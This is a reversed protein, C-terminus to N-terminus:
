RRALVRPLVLKKAPDGGLAIRPHRRGARHREHGWRPRGHRQAPVAGFRHDRHPPGSSGSFCLVIVRPIYEVGGFRQLGFAFQITAVMGIFISTVAFLASRGCASSDIQYITSSIELAAQVDTSPASPSRRSTGWTSRCCLVGRPFPRVRRDAFAAPHALRPLLAPISEPPQRRLREHSREGRRGCVSASSRPRRASARPSIDRLRRVPWPSGPRRRSTSSTMTCGDESSTSTTSCPVGDFKVRMLTHLAERDDLLRGPQRTASTTGMILHETLCPPWADMGRGCRVDFMTSGEARTATPSTPGRSACGPAVRRACPRRPHGPRGQPPHGGESCIGTGAAAPRRCPASLSFFFLGRVM